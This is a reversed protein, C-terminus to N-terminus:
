KPSRGGSPGDLCANIARLTLIQARDLFPPLGPPTHSFECADALAKILMNFYPAPECTLPKLPNLIIPESPSGEDGCWEVKLEQLSNFTVNATVHDHVTIHFRGAPHQTVSAVNVFITDGRRQPGFSGSGGGWRNNYSDTFGAM